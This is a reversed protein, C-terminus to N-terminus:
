ELQEVYVIEDESGFCKKNDMCSECVLWVPIYKENNGPKREGSNSPKYTVKYKPVHEEVCINMKDGFMTHARISIVKREM